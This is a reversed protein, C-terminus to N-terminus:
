LQLQCQQAPQLVAAPQRQEAKPTAPVALGKRPNTTKHNHTHVGLQSRSKSRTTFCCGEHCCYKACRQDSLPTCTPQVKLLSRQRKQPRGEPLTYTCISRVNHMNPPERHCIRKTPILQKHESAPACTQVQINHGTTSAVSVQQRRHNHSQLTNHSIVSVNM